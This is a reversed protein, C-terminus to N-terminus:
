ILNFSATSNLYLKFTYDNGDKLLVNSNNDRIYIKGPTLQLNLYGNIRQLVSSHYAEVAYQTGSELKDLTSAPFYFIVCYGSSVCYIPLFSHQTVVSLITTMVGMGSSSVLLMLGKSETNGFKEIVFSDTLSGNPLIKVYSM